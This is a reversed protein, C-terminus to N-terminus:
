NPTLWGNKTVVKRPAEDVPAEAAADPYEFLCDVGPPNSVSAGRGPQVIPAVTEVHDNGVIPDDDAWSVLLTNSNDGVKEVIDPPPGQSISFDGQNLNSQMCPPQSPVPKNGSSRTIPGSKPPPQTPPANSYIQSVRPTPNTRANSPQSGKTQAVKRSTSANNGAREQQVRLDHVYNYHAVSAYSINSSRTSPGTNNPNIDGAGVGVSAPRREDFKNPPHCSGLTLVM